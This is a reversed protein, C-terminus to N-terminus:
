YVIFEIVLIVELDNDGRLLSGDVIPLSMLLCYRLEMMSYYDCVWSREILSIGLGYCVSYFFIAVLMPILVELNFMIACLPSSYIFGTVWNWFACSNLTALPTQLTSKILLLFCLLLFNFTDDYFISLHALFDPNKLLPRFFLWLVFLLDGTPLMTCWFLESCLVLDAGLSVAVEGWSGESM